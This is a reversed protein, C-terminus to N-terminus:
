EKTLDYEAPPRFRGAPLYRVTDPHISEHARRFHSISNWWRRYRQRRTQDATTTDRVV